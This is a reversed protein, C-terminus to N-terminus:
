NTSQSVFFFKLINELVVGFVGFNETHNVKGLYVCYLIGVRSHREKEWYSSKEGCEGHKQRTETYEREEIRKKRL